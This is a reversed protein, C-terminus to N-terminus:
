VDPAMDSGAGNLGSGAGGVGYGEGDAGFGAGGVVYGEGDARSVQGAWGPVQVMPGSVQAMRDLVPRATEMILVYLANKGCFHTIAWRPSWGIVRKLGKKANYTRRWTPVQM